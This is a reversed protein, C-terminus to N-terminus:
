ARDPAAFRTELEPGLRFAAGHWRAIRIGLTHSIIICPTSELIREYNGQFDLAWQNLSCTAVTVKEM